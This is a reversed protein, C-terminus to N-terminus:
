WGDDVVMDVRLYTRPKEPPFNQLKSSTDLLEVRINCAM